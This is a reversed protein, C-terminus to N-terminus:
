VKAIRLIIKDKVHHIHKVVVQSFEIATFLIEVERMLSMSLKVLELQM